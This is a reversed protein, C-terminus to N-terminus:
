EYWVRMLCLGQPPATPAAARRDAHALIEAFEAPTRKGRGVEALTAVITRVMQPLFANAALDIAILRDEAPPGAGYLGAVPWAYCAAELMERETSPRDDDADDGDVGLGGGCFSAFDHRGLLAQAAQHMADVDLPLRLHWTRDRLLPSPCVAQRIMYRYARGKASYRAHFGDPAEEVARAAVDPPLVGNLSRHLKECPWLPELAFSAVQGLAHVGADTRGALAIRVALGTLRALAAEVEGQVTRGRDAAQAQSGHFHTGDYELTLKYLM